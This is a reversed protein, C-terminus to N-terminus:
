TNREVDIWVERDPRLSDAEEWFAAPLEAAAENQLDALRATKATGVVTMAVDPDRLSAQLAATTVDTNWRACLERLADVAAVIEDRAPRYGYTRAGSPRALLGGGFVAANVVAMGRARAHAVIDEASHDVLTWRNHTLVVEFVDLDVYRIIEQVKGGAVGIHGIEGADRLRILTEVAGGPATIEEFSFYEPDHLYVMPLQAVGLRESSERVSEAVRAGSYDRGSADVKTQVLFDAPLGGVRRVAEGIRRESEGGSYGNSTDIVRIPSSLVSEVFGVAQERSVEGYKEPVSGLPSGGIAIASVQLGTGGLERMWPRPRQPQASM